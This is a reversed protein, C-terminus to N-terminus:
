LSVIAQGDGFSGGEKSSANSACISAGNDGKM